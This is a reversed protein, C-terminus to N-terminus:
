GGHDVELRKMMLMTASFTMLHTCRDCIIMRLPTPFSERHQSPQGPVTTTGPLYATISAPGFPTDAVHAWTFGDDNGCVPCGKFGCIRLFAMFHDMDSADPAPAESKNPM